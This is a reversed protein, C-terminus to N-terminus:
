AYTEDAARERTVELEFFPERVPYLERAGPVEAFRDRLAAPLESLGEGDSALLWSEDGPKLVVHAFRSALNELMSGGLWALEGGLTNAGGSIRVSM